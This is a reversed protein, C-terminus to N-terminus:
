GHSEENKRNKGSLKSRASSSTARIDVTPCDGLALTFTVNFKGHFKQQFRAGERLTNTM